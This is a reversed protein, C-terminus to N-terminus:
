PMYRRQGFLGKWWGEIGWGQPWQVSSAPVNHSQGSSYPAYEDGLGRQWKFSRIYNSRTVGGKMVWDGPELGGRGWRSVSITEASGAARAAGSLPTFSLVAVQSSSQRSISLLNGTADYSYIVTDTPGVTSVLRGVSDYIYSVPGSVIADLALNATTPDSM